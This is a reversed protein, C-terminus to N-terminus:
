NLIHETALSEGIAHWTENSLDHNPSMFVILGKEIMIGLQSKNTLRGLFLQGNSTQVTSYKQIVNTLFQNQYDPIDTFQSPQIYESVTIRAGDFSIIYSLIAVNNEAKSYKYSDTTFGTTDLPIIFPSFSLATRIAKPIPNTDPKLSNYGVIAIVSVLATAIVLLGIRVFINKRIISLIQSQNKKGMM